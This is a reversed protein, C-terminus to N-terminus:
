AALLLEIIEIIELAEDYPKANVQVVGAGARSPLGALPVVTRTIVEVRESKSCAKLGAIRPSAPVQIKTKGVAAAASLGRAAVQARRPIFQYYFWPGGISTQPPTELALVEVQGVATSGTVGVVYIVVSQEDVGGAAIEPNTLIIDAAPPVQLYTAPAQLVIDKPGAAGERLTILGPSGERAPAEVEYLYAPRLAAPDAAALAGLVIDQPTAEGPMVTILKQDAM